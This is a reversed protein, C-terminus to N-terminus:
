RCIEFIETRCKKQPYVWVGFPRCSSHYQRMCHDRPRTGLWEKWNAVIRQLCADPDLGCHRGSHYIVLRKEKTCWIWCILRLINERASKRLSDSSRYRRSVQLLGKRLRIIVLPDQCQVLNWLSLDRMQLETGRVHFIRCSGQHVAVMQFLEWTRPAAVFAERRQKVTLPLGTESRTCSM